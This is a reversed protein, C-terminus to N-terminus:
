NGFVSHVTSLMLAKGILSQCNAFDPMAQLRAARARLLPPDDPFVGDASMGLARAFAALLDDHGEAFNAEAGNLNREKWLGIKEGLVRPGSTATALLNSLGYPRLEPHTIALRALEGWWDPTRPQRALTELLFRGEFRSPLGVGAERCHKLIESRAAEADVPGQNWPLPVGALATNTPFANESRRGALVELLHRYVFPSLAVQPWGNATITLAELAEETRESSIGVAVRNTVPSRFIGLRDSELFDTVEWQTRGEREWRVVTRAVKFLMTSRETLPQTAEHSASLRRDFNESPPGIQAPELGYALLLFRLEPHISESLAFGPGPFDVCDRGALSLTVNGQWRKGRRWKVSGERPISVSTSLNVYGRFRVAEGRLSGAKFPGTRAAQRVLDPSMLVLGEPTKSLCGMLRVYPERLLRKLGEDTPDDLQAPSFVEMPQTSTVAQAWLRTARDDSIAVDILIEAADVGASALTAAGDELVSAWEPQARFDDITVGTAAGQVAPTFGTLCAALGLCFILSLSKM